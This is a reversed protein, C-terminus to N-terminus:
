LEIKKFFQTSSLDTLAAGWSLGVGFGCLLTNKLKTEEKLQQGLETLMLPISAPGTNGVDEIYIPIKETSVSMKKRLYNLMLSNAQHLAFTDIDEKKLSSLLILEDITKPVEQLAFDMIATGNMYIYHSRVPAYHDNDKEIIEINKSFLEECGAGDTKILFNIKSTGKEILTASGADGFVLRLNKDDEHMYPSIVDGVCLLVRNLNSNQLLLSSQFLGYIYGSCGYSIDFALTDKKLKLKHQLKASTAPMISDPTQSVFVIADISEREIKLNDLLENAAAFCLDSTRQNKEAIRVSYIGTNKSIRAIDLEGFKHSLSKLELKNKPVCASIGTIQINHFENFMKEEILSVRFTKIGNHM